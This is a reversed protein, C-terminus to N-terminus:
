YYIRCNSSHFSVMVTRLCLGQWPVEDHICNKPGIKALESSIMTLRMLRYGVEIISSELSSHSHPYRLTVM